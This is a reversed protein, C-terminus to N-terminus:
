GSLDTAAGEQDPSAGVLAVVDPPLPYPREVALLGAAETLRGATVLAAVSRALDTVETIDTIWEDVCRHCGPGVIRDPHVPPAAAPHPPQARPGVVEPLDTFHNPSVVKRRVTSFYIEIQNRWSAHV